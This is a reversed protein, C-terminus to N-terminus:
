IQIRMINLIIAKPKKIKNQYYNFVTWKNIQHKDELKELENIENCLLSINTNEININKTIYKWIYKKM